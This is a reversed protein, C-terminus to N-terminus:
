NPHLNPSVLPLHLTHHLVVGPTKKQSSICHMCSCTLSLSRTLCLGFEWRNKFLYHVLFPKINKFSLHLTYISTFQFSHSLHFHHPIGFNANMTACSRPQATYERVTYPQRRTVSPTSSQSVDVQSGPPFGHRKSDPSPSIAWNM